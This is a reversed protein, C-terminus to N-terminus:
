EGDDERGVISLAKAKLGKVIAAHVLAEERGHTVWIEGAGTDSITQLLEPWDAHDSVALPLEVGRQRARGRVHMWGSALSTVPDSFRRSWRDSLASPPSLVIDGALPTTADAVSPVEGLALGRGIYYDTTARLAGHLWIPRDYGAQRLLMILRQCKGLGYVGVQHTRGPFTAMSALLKAIEHEAPGHKFVPLGFTAETIFLDCVVPEFPSCTPDAHRKYDGSIVARQGNHEIVVQASGLIHGAPVLRVNVDSVRLTTGLKLAQTTQGAGSGLRIKMIDLTESTALVNSHGPRAHDSHGHTIIAFDVADHPDVYFGGPECFLGAAEPRLWTEFKPSSNMM